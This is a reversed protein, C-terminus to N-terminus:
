IKLQLNSLQAVTRMVSKEQDLQRYSRERVYFSMRNLLRKLYRAEDFFHNKGKEVDGMAIIMQSVNKKPRFICNMGKKPLINLM